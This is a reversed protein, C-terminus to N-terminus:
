PERVQSLERMIKVTEAQTKEINALTEQLKRQQEQMDLSLDQRMKELKLEFEQQKQAASIQDRQGGQQIKAAELQQSQAQLQMKAQVEAQKIQAEQVAAQGKLLEAQALLTAADPQQQGQAAQLQQKEEDTLQSEPIAGQALLQKRKREAVEDMGPATVNKLFVDGALNMLSPDVQAAEIFSTIMEQQRNKFSAGASCTVDYIGQSLDNLTVVEGTQNDIVTQNITVLELTGDENLLRVQRETDYVKPIADVIIRATHRIAIEQAKFYKVTGNDGKNQLRQIAVGSQLGPNDGMNAAFLGASQGIIQRMSESITRLGPNIQAGGQQAPPPVEADANYLQVPDANTNMTALSREHGAAQKPTMWYKARPALAGEEIERSLSYNLVRQADILKEVVGWYIVKNEHIKFNGFTPIVPIYSFVTKASKGIWGEGDFKRVCCVRKTRKRRKTETIGAAALEDVVKQFDENDEYVAGNSMLVLEVPEDKLYYFEGCIVTEAKDFYAESSRPQCVSQGARDPFKEKFKSLPIANLVWAHNADSMDQNEASVDFWVRDIFNNIKEIVIDQDFSCADAYKQVIRWGDLGGTIMARAAQNFVEKANSINEINRILGDYVAALDKTSDGGAPKVKIDFDAQEIEGAVQDVIPSTQDFTYRPKNVNANYWHPEWQGDRKDVFYHAERARERNDEDAEQAEKLLAMVAQYDNYDPM